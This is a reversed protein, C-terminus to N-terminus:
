KKFGTMVLLGVVPFFSSTYSNTIGYEGRGLALSICDADVNKNAIPKNIQQDEKPVRISPLIILQDASGTILIYEFHRWLERVVKCKWVSIRNGTLM